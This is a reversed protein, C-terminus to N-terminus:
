RDRLAAARQALAMLDKSGSNIALTELMQVLSGTSKEGPLGLAELGGGPGLAAGHTVPEDPRDTPRDFAGLSGPLPGPAAVVGSGGGAVAGPPPALPVARQGAAQEGAKGYQQGKATQVPLARAGMGLDSRNGYNRGAIGQRKGGRAM